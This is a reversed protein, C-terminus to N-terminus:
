YSMDTATIASDLGTKIKVIKPKTWVKDKNTKKDM